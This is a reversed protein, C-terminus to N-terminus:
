PAVHDGEGRGPRGLSRPKVEREKPKSLWDELVQNKQWVSRVRRLANAVATGEM